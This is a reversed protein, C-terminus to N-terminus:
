CLRRATWQFVWLWGFGDWVGGFCWRVYLASFKKKPFRRGWFVGFRGLVGWVVGFVVLGDGYMYHALNRKQFGVAVFYRLGGWFVEFVVLGNGHMYIRSKKKLVSVAAEEHPTPARAGLRVGLGASANHLICVTIPSFSRWSKQFALVQIIKVKAKIIIWYWPCRPFRQNM